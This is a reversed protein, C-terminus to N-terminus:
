LDQEGALKVAHEYLTDDIYFGARRRLDDLLPRVEPIHRIQKCRLLVGIVGMVRNGLYQAALRGAQEDLLILDAKIQLGLAITEAEGRDLDLCLAEVLPGDVVNVVEIWNARKVENYGPWAKGESSLEALVAAPVFVNGFLSNLLDLHGIAALNTIPSTNSVVIM